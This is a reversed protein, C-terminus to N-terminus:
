PFLWRPYLHLGKLLRLVRQRQLMSDEKQVEVVIMLAEMIEKQAKVQLEMAVMPAGMKMVQAEVQKKMLEMKITMMVTATKAKMKKTIKMM